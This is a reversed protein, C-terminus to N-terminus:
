DHNFQTLWLWPKQHFGKARGTVDESGIEPGCWNCRGCVPFFCIDWVRCPMHFIHFMWWVCPNTKINKKGALRKSREWNSESLGIWTLPLLHHHRDRQRIRLSIVFFSSSIRKPGSHRDANAWFQFTPGGGGLFIAVVYAFMPKEKFHYLRKKKPIEMKFFIWPFTWLQVFKRGWLKGWRKPRYLLEAASLGRSTQDGWFNVWSSAVHPANDEKIHKCLDQRNEVLSPIFCEWLQKESTFPVRSPSMPKKTIRYQMNNVNIVNSHQTYIYIHICIYIYIYIITCM